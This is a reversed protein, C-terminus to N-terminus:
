VIEFSSSCQFVTQEHLHRRDRTNPQGRSEHEVSVSVRRAIAEIYEMVVPATDLFFVTVIADFVAAQNLLLSLLIGDCTSLQLKEWVSNKVVSFCCM